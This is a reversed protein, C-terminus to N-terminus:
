FKWNLDFQYRSYDRDGGLKDATNDYWIFSTNWNKTLAYTGKISFGDGATRGSAFTADVMGGYLADTEIDHYSAAISWTGPDSAKGYVAGYSYATDEDADGNRAWSGFVNFGAFTAGVQLRTINYDYVLNGNADVTNGNCNRQYCPNFGEADEFDQYGLRAYFLDGAYGVEAGIVSTDDDGGREDIQLWYGTGYFGAPASFKMALGEPMYDSDYFYDVPARSWPQPMKGATLSMQELPKWNVYAQRLTIDKASADGDFTQVRSRPNNGGTSLELGVRTNDSVQAALSFRARMRQRNREDRGEDDIGEFRYRFDGKLSIRDAWTPTSGAPEVPESEPTEGRADERAVPQSEESRRELEAIRANLAAVQAKLEELEASSQALASGPLALAVALAITSVRTKM